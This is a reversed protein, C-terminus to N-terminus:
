DEPKIRSTFRQGWKKTMYVDYDNRKNGNFTLYAFYYDFFWELNTILRKM